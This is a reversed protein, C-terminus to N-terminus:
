AFTINSLVIKACKGACFISDKWVVRLPCTVNGCKALLAFSSTVLTGQSEEVLMQFILGSDVAFLSSPHPLVTLPRFM